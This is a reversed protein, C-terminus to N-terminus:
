QATTRRMAYRKQTPDVVLRQPPQRNRTSFRLPHHPTSLSNKCVPSNYQSPVEKRSEQDVRSKAVEDFMPDSISVRARLQNAHRVHLVGSNSLVKYMTKGVKMAIEGPEWRAKLGQYSRYYVKDSVNFDRFRANHHANFNREMKLGYKNASLSTPFNVPKVLSMETRLTRGLFLEAPTKGRITGNPTSRYTRLYEVISTDISNSSRIKSITRKFTDVFREAQGNSQPHYPPSHVLQIGKTKCYIKFDSSTFQSGNDSVLVRPYGYRAFLSQLVRILCKSTTNQMRFVEPWKSHADVICLFNEGLFPGAFDVHIRDWPNGSKPWPHLFNKNPNKAFNSCEVCGKVIKEIDSNLGPWYVYNQALARMRTIGPHGLHLTKLVRNRLSSPIVVKDDFLLCGKIAYLSNRKSFFSAIPGPQIRKPWGNKINHLVEALLVDSSTAESIEQSTVPITELQFVLFQEVSGEILALQSIVFEEEDRPHDAVLRSLVDVQGFDSTHVYQIEFNYASLILAWRQLRSAAYIPIGKKSGFIALLPKHDTQLLFKHGFLYRHFKKVAYM